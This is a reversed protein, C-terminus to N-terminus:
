ITFPNMQSEPKSAEHMVNTASVLHENNRWLIQQAILIILHQDEELTIVDKENYEISLIATDYLALKQYVSGLSGHSHM